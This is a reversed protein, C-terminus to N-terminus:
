WNMGDSSFAILIAYHWQQMNTRDSSQAVIAYQDIAKIYVGDGHMYGQSKLNLATFKGGLAPETWTGNYYKKWTTVKLRRAASIVDAVPARATAVLQSPGTASVAKHSDQFYIQFFGDKVIYNVLGMNACEQKVTLSQGCPGEPSAIYGVWQFTMGGDNSYALGARINWAYGRFELHLWMLIEDDNIRYVNSPWIGVNHGKRASELCTKDYGDPCPYGRLTTKGMNKSAKASGGESVM